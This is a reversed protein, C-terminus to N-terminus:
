GGAPLAYNNQVRQAAANGYLGPFVNAASPRFDSSYGISAEGALGFMPGSGQPEPMEYEDDSPNILGAVATYDKKLLQAADLIDLDEYRGKVAQVTKSLLSQNVTGPVKPTGISDFGSPYDYFTGESVPVKPVTAPATSPYTDFGSPQDYFTGESVPVVPVATSPDASFTREVGMTGTDQFTKFVGEPVKGGEVINGLEPNLDILQKESVGASRALEAVTKKGTSTIQNKFPDFITSGKKMTRSWASDNGFFNTAAGDITVGPIKNLATKAFQGIGETITSFTNKAVTVFNHAGKLVHGLGRALTSGLGQGAVGTLFSAVIGLKGVFKGIKGVVKKIGKGIKKVVKKVGKWLKSFFGM